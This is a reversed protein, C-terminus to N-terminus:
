KNVLYEKTIGMKEITDFGENLESTPKLALLKIRPSNSYNVEGSKFPLCLIVYTSNEIEFDTILKVIENNLNDLKANFENINEM